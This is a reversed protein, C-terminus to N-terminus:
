ELPARAVPTLGQLTSDRAYVAVHLTSLYRMRHTRTVGAADVATCLM